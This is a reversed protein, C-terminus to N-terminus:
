ASFGEALLKFFDLDAQLKGIRAAHEDFALSATVNSFALEMIIEQDSLGCRRMNDVREAALTGLDHPDM